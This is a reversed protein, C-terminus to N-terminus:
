IDSVRWQRYFSLFYKDNNVERTVIYFLMVFKYEVIFSLYFLIIIEEEGIMM